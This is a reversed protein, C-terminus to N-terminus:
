ACYAAIGATFGLAVSAEIEGESIAQAEAEDGKGAAGRLHLGRIVNPVVHFVSGNGIGAAAFLALFAAYFWPLGGEGLSLFVLALVAAAVMAM